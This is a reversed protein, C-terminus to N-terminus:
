NLLMHPLVLSSCCLELVEDLLDQMVWVKVWLVNIMVHMLPQHVTNCLAIYLHNIKPFFTIFSLLDHQILPGDELNESLQKSILAQHSASFMCASSAM